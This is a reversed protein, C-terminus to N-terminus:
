KGSGATVDNQQVEFGQAKDKSQDAQLNELLSTPPILNIKLFLQQWIAKELFRQEYEFVTEHSLYGMKGNAETSQGGGFIVQPLGVAAYFKNKIDQRWGMIIDNVNVQVIDYSLMNEDDPIYICEGKNWATDMKTIFANIKTTDQTKLKFIVLPRAQRHMIKMMDIFSENEALLTKEIPTVVSIGHIQAGLRNHSLHFIEDPKFKTTVGNLIQEYRKIIGDKGVVIRITGPDLPKLNILLGSDEDRIIEAYSDGGIRSVLDMNFIIQGFDDKGWGSLHDLVVETEADATYGKGCTWISKMLMASHFEPCNMFYGWQQTWKANQWTTEDQSLATDPTASDVTINTVNSTLNSIAANGIDLTPLNAM